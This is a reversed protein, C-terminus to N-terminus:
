LLKVVEIAWVRNAPDLAAPGAGPPRNAPAASSQQGLPSRDKPPSVRARAPHRLAIRYRLM